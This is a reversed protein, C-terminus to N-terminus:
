LDSLACSGRRRADFVFVAIGDQVPVCVVRRVELHGSDLLRLYGGLGGCAIFDVGEVERGDRVGTVLDLDRLGDLWM